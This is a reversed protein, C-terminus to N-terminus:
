KELWVKSLDYNEMNNLFFGKVYPQTIRRTGYWYVNAFAADDLILKEVERYKAIREDEDLTSRAELLLADVDPNN